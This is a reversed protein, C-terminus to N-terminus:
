KDIITKKLNENYYFLKADYYNDQMLENRFYQFSDLKLIEELSLM